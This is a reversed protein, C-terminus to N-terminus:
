ALKQQLIFVQTLNTLCLIIKRELFLTSADIHIIKSWNTYQSLKFKIKM